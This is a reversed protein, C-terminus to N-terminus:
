RFMPPLGPGLYMNYQVFLEYNYARPQTTPAAAGVSLTSRQNLVFTLGSTVNAQDYYRMTGGVSTFGLARAANTPSLTHAQKNLPIDAHLEIMPVVATIWNQNSRRFIYGLGIDAFLYTTDRYYFPTDTALFAQTFWGRRPNPGLSHYCSVYPQISGTHQVGDVTFLPTVNAITEPGTPCIVAVGASLVNSNQPDYYLARKYTVIMDGMSASTNTGAGFTGIQQRGFTQVGPQVTYLPVRIGISSRMDDSCIKEFGFMERTIGTDGGVRDFYNSNIIVRTRPWPSENDSHKFVHSAVVASVPGNGYPVVIPATFTPAGPNPAVFTVNGQLTNGVLFDGFMAPGASEFGRAAGYNGAYQNFNPTVPADAAPAEIPNPMPVNANLDPEPQPQPAVNPEQAPAAPTCPCPCQCRCSPGRRGCRACTANSAHFSAQTVEDSVVVPAEAGFAQGAVAVVMLWSVIVRYRGHM